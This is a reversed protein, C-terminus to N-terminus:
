QSARRAERPAVLAVNHPGEAAEVRAVAEGVHLAHGVPHAQRVLVDRLLQAVPVHARTARALAGGAGAVGATQICKRKPHLNHPRPHHRAHVEDNRKLRPKPCEARHRRKKGSSSLSWSRSHFARARASPSQALARGARAIWDKHVDRENSAPSVLIMADWTTDSM